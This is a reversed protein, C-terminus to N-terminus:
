GTEADVADWAQLVALAREEADTILRTRRSVIKTLPKAGICPNTEALGARVAREYAQRLLCIEHMATKRPCRDLYELVDRRGLEAADMHGLVRILHDSLVAYVKRTGDTWAHKEAMFADVIGAVTRSSKGSEIRRYERLAVALNSGLPTWKRPKAGTVHYYANAKRHLRPLKM